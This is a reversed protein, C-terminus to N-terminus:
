ACMLRTSALGKRKARRGALPVRLPLRLVEPVDGEAGDALSFVLTQVPIDADSASANFSLLALEAVSKNGIEALVPAVNVESVTVTIQEEDCMSPSGNDCVKVTFTYEEPGQAETPTWTFAGSASNISAGTPAGVLSYTLTQAPYEEDTASATFILTALEAISKNGIPNLVPAHNGAAPGTTFSWTTSTNSLGGDNAVAYWEYEEDELLGTWSISANSGSTVDSVTGILEFESQATGEMDYSMTFEENNTSSTLYTNIYPSYIQAYIEDTSPKFTLIRMYGTNTTSTYDQYDTLLIHVPNMGSRTELRYASGDSASHMHGCLMLFLNPNDSLATYTTQNAWSNNTNLIDHQEVIGRKTSNAKLLADAWDLAGTGANYQLNILIFDMGGASFFSYNNYNDSGSTYYGKYWSKSSFRSSGFYDTYYTTGMAIDHNGPGVSYQVGGSDLIDMAADARQWQTQDTSTNTIDGLHTVFAVNKDSKHDVIYQTQANFVTTLTPSAVLNQTDPIAFITFDAAPEEAEKVRGYFSVSMTDSDPDSVTVELTPHLTVGTAGNIPQVLVPANPAHSFNATISKDGNMVITYTGSTNIIDGADTGGWSKFLYEGNPVPTLTVVTGSM